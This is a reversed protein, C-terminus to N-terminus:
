GAHDTGGRMSRLVNLASSRVYTNTDSTLRELLRRGVNADIAFATQMCTWRVNFDPHEILDAVHDIAPAYRARAIEQLMSKLVVSERSLMVAGVPEGSNRDFEWRQAVVPKMALEIICCDALSEKDLELTERPADIDIRTWASYTRHGRFQIRQRPDFVDLDSSQSMSFVNFGVPHAAVAFMVSPAAMVSSITDSTEVVHDVVNRGIEKRKSSRMSFHFGDTECLLFGQVGWDRGGNFSQDKTVMSIADAFVQDWVDKRIFREFGSVAVWFSAPDARIIKRDVNHLFERLTPVQALAYSEHTIM